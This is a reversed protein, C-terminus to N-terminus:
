TTDSTRDEVRIRRYVVDMEDLTKFDYKDGVSYPRKQVLALAQIYADWMDKWPRHNRIQLPGLKYDPIFLWLKRVVDSGVWFAAARDVMDWDIEHTYYRYSCVVADITNGPASALTIKGLSSDVSSVTVETLTDIDDVNTMTYVTVESTSVSKDGDTDAIPYFKTYFDTNSGDITGSLLEFDVEVTIQEILARTSDSIYDALDSDSIDDTTLPTLRRVSAVSTYDAM